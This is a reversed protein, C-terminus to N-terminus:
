ASFPWNVSRTQVPIVDTKTLLEIHVIVETIDNWIDIPHFWIDGGGLRDNSDMLFSAHSIAQPPPSPELQLITGWSLYESLIIIMMMMVDLEDFDDM